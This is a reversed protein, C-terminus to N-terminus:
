SDVESDKRSTVTPWHVPSRVPTGLCAGSQGQNPHPSSNPGISLDVAWISRNGSTAQQVCGLSHGGFRETRLPGIDSVIFLCSRDNM